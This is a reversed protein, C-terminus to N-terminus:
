ELVEIIEDVIKRVAYPQALGMSKVSMEKLRDRDKLLEALKEGSMDKECLVFAAGKQTMFDANKYQHRDKSYPYPILVAPLGFFSIESLTGTGARCIVADSASYVVDMETSFAEVYANRGSKRYMDRVFDLDNTGTLHIFQVDKPLKDPIDAAVKNINHAGRSGGMILLTFLDPKLGLKKRAEGCQIKKEFRVPKGTFICKGAPFCYKTDEFGVLIKDAFRGALRNAKGPITNQEHVICPVGLIRSWLVIGISVFGGTSIVVDPRICLALLVSQLLGAFQGFLFKTVRGFGTGTLGSASIKYFRFGNKEVIQRALRDNSGFFFIRCDPMRKRLEDAISLGCFLHGGTGSSAIVIRM